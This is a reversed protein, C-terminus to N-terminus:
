LAVGTAWNVWWLIGLAVVATAGASIGVVAAAVRWGDMITFIVFMILCVVFFPIAIIWFVSM